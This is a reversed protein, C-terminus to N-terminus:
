LKRVLNFHKCQHRIQVYVAYIVSNNATELLIFVVLIGHFINFINQPTNEVNTESHANASKKAAIIWPFFFWMKQKHTQNKPRGASKEPM